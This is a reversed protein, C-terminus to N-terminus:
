RLLHQRLRKTVERLKARDEESDRPSRGGRRGGIPVGDVTLSLDDVTGRVRLAALDAAKMSLDSLLGQVGPPLKQTLAEPHVRYDVRGGFDTWGALSIPVEAVTLTLNKSSIRGRQIEFDSRISGNGHGDPLRVVRTLDSVVQLGDLRIPDIAIDGRGVLTRALTASSAGRGRLYLDLGLKGELDQPMGSLIPLLYSLADMGGGLNVDEARAQVEFAPGDAERDLQATLEFRGGNLTGKMEQISAKHRQWTGRADIEAFDLVTGTPDDQVTVKGGKLRLNVSCGSEAADLDDPSGRSGGPDPGTRLLDNFEFGGDRRRHVRLAVGFAEVEKPDNQGFVLGVLNLDIRLEEARLWPTRGEGREGIELGRLRVGGFTGLRLAELRVARGTAAELRAVLRTKAWDTPVIALVVGWFAPPILLLGLWRLRRPKPCKM